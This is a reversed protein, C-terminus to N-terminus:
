VKRAVKRKIYKDWESTYEVEEGPEYWREGIKCPYLVKVKAKKPKKLPTEKGKEVPM